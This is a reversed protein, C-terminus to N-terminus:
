QFLMLIGKNNNTQAIQLPTNPSPGMAVANFDSKADLLKKVINIHGAQTAAHLPTKMSENTADVSAKSAILLEVIDSNGSKSAAYLTSEVHECENRTHYYKYRGSNIDAHLDVLAKVINCHDNITAFYLSTDYCNTEADRSIPSNIDIVNTIVLICMYDINNRVIALKCQDSYNQMYLSPHNSLLQAIDNRENWIAVNLATRIISAHTYFYNSDDMSPPKSYIIRCVRDYDGCQAGDFLEKQYRTRENDEFVLIDSFVSMYVKVRFKSIKDACNRFKGFIIGESTYFERRGNFIPRHDLHVAGNAFLKRVFIDTYKESFVMSSECWIIFEILLGLDTNERYNHQQQYINFAHKVIECNTRIKTYIKLFGPIGVINIPPPQSTM